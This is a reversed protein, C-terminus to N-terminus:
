RPSGCIQINYCYKEADSSSDWSLEGSVSLIAVREVKSLLEMNFYNYHTSDSPMTIFIYITTLSTNYYGLSLIYM